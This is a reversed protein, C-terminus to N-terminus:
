EDEDEENEGQHLIRYDLMKDVIVQLQHLERTLSKLGDVTLGDMYASKFVDELELEKEYIRKKLEQLENETEEQENEDQQKESEKTEETEEDLIAWGIRNPVGVLIVGHDTAVKIEGLCYGLVDAVEGTRINVLKNGIKVDSLNILPRTPYEKLKKESPNMGADEPQVPAVEPREDIEPKTEKPLQHKHMLQEEPETKTAKAPASESKKEPKPAPVEFKENFVLEWDYITGEGFVEHIDGEADSATAKIKESTRANTYVISENDTHISIMIKGVGPVRSWLVADGNPTLTDILATAAKKNIEETRVETFAKIFAEDKNLAKYLQKNEHFFEKWIRETPTYEADDKVVEPAAAEIAVEIPTVTEEAAIERKIEQIERKTLSPTIEEIIADPLTLMEQLKSVGYGEYKELLKDSYGNISYRDNIAIFRSVVDKSLGYEAQAFEAVNKYGSEELINTDRAVKLLYGIRVFGEANAKIENDLSTKYERYDHFSETLAEPTEIQKKLEEPDNVKSIDTM